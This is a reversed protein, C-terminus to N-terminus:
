EAVAYGDTPSVWAVSQKMEPHLLGNVTVNATVGPGETGDIFCRRKGSLESLRTVLRGRIANAELATAPKDEVYLKGALFDDVRVISCVANGQVEGSIKYVIMVRPEIIGSVTAEFRGDDQVRFRVISSCNHRAVDPDICRVRGARAPALPDDTPADATQLAAAALMAFAEFM